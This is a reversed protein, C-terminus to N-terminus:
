FGDGRVIEGGNRTFLSKLVEVDIDNSILRVSGDIFAVGFIGPHNSGLKATPNKPDWELDEPKTWIVAHEDQVEVLAITKSTGDIKM